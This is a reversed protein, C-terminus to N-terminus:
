PPGISTEAHHVEHREGSVQRLLLKYPVHLVTFSDSFMNPMGLMIGGVWGM